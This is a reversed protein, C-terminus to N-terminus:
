QNLTVRCSCSMSKPDRVCGCTSAPQGTISVSCQACGWQSGTFPGCNWTDVTIFDVGTHWYGVQAPDNDTVICRPDQECGSLNVVFQMTYPLKFPPQVMNCDFYTERAAVLATSCILLILPHLAM